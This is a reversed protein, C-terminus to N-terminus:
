TEKICLGCLFRGREDEYSKSTPRYWKNCEPCKEIEGTLDSLDQYDEIKGSLPGECKGYYISGGEWKISNHYCFEEIICDGCDPPDPRPDTTLHRDLKDPNM